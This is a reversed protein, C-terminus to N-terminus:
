PKKERPKKECADVILNWAVKVEFPACEYRAERPRGEATHAHVGIIVREVTGNLETWTEFFECPGLADQIRRRQEDTPGYRM